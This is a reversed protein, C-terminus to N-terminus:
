STVEDIQKVSESRQQLVRNFSNPIIYQETSKCRLSRQECKKMFQSTKKEILVM